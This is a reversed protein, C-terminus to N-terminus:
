KKKGKKNKNLLPSTKVEGENSQKPECQEIWTDDDRLMQILKHSSVIKTQEVANGDLNIIRKFTIKDM